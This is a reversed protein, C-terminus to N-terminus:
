VVAKQLCMIWDSGPVVPADMAMINGSYGTSNRGKTYSNIYNASTSVKLNKLVNYSGSFNFNHRKMQSNPYIGKLDKNAYAMRYTAKDCGGSIDISNTLSM